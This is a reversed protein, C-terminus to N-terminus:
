VNASAETAAKYGPVVKTTGFLPGFITMGLRTLSCWRGLVRSSDKNEFHTCDLNVRTHDIGSGLDGM